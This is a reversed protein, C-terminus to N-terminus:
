LLIDLCHERVIESAELKERHQNFLLWNSLKVGNSRNWICAIPMSFPFFNLGSSLVLARKSSAARSPPAMARALM